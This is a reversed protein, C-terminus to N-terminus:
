PAPDPPGPAGPDRELATPANGRRGEVREVCARAKSVHRFTATLDTMTSGM